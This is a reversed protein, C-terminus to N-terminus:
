SDLIAHGASYGDWGHHREAWDDLEWLALDYVCLIEDIRGLPVLFDAPAARWRDFTNRHSDEVTRRNLTLWRGDSRRTGHADLFGLVIQVAYGGDSLM